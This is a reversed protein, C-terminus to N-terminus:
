VLQELEQATPVWASSPGSCYGPFFGPQFGPMIGERENHRPPKATDTTEQTKVAAAVAAAAEAAAAEAAAAEVAAAEAAAAQAAAEAAAAEAAAAEAAAAEAAAAQTSARAVEAGAAVSSPQPMAQSSTAPGSGKLTSKQVVLRLFSQDGWLNPRPDGALSAGPGGFNPGGDALVGVVESLTTIGLGRLAAQYRAAEVSSSTPLYREAPTAAGHFVLAEFGAASSGAGARYWGEIRGPMSEVNPAMSVFSLRGGPVLFQPAGQVIAALVQEGTDGGNGFMAGAGSAIGQPNPVFPPNAVIADFQKRAPLAEYLSGHHIGDVRDVLGNMALNFRVFKPSRPNLDVFTARQAYYRLAVIGQVGSGTCLDLVSSVPERPAGCMLALSDESIYMVPELDDSSFTQEFDTAILLDEELPWLAINSVAFYAGCSFSCADIAAIAENPEVLRCANGDIASIARLRLLLQTCEPGFLQCIRALPLVRHLLFIRVLDVLDVPIKPGTTEPKMPNPEEVSEFLGQELQDARRDVFIFESMSSAKTAILVTKTEYQNVRFIERIQALLTEGLSGSGLDEGTLFDAHRPAKLMASYRTLLDLRKDSSGIGAAHQLAEYAGDIDFLRMKLVSSNIFAVALSGQDQGGKQLQQVEWLCRALEAKLISRTVDGHARAVPDTCGHRPVSTTEAPDGFKCLKSGERLSQERAILQQLCQADAPVSMLTEWECRLEDFKRASQELEAVAVEDEPALGVARRFCTSPLRAQGALGARRAKLRGFALSVAAAGTVTPASGRPGNTNTAFGAHVRCRSPLGAAPAPLSPSPGAAHRRLAMGDMRACRGEDSGPDGQLAPSPQFGCNRDCNPSGLWHM